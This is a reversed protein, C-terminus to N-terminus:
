RRVDTPTNIEGSYRLTWKANAWTPFYPPRTYALRTDYQYLKSYGNMGTQSSNQGVIGRWRQAISGWVRLEGSSGGVAYKQVLFSHQLTQISGAIMIGPQPTISQGPSAYRMPWGVPSSEGSPSGWSYAVATCRGTYWSYSTCREESRVRVERPRFVEVSNTAVLGLMDDSTEVQGGALVLDGTVIVSQEASITVRGDLVGEAYLNGQGCFKATETMNTDYTYSQNAGTAASGTYNGIPLTKGSLGGIEGGYCQRNATGPSTAAYIVKENPVPLTAGSASDLQDLSGCSPDTSEGPARIAVPARNGNVSKKNWVTMTGSANFIVRTAGYYHCGPNDKFQSSNDVLYKPTAYRPQEGFTASSGQRLCSSNWTNSNSTVNRCKPDATEFSKEFTAGTSYITDNSFVAGDLRDSSIFQIETCDDASRGQFWYKANTSGDRGCGVKQTGNTGYVQVNSPDASEFDTYYVYDTSGGMGVTAQVTRYVGNSRGTVTLLVTGETLKRTADVKYHFFADKDTTAGAQVPLWGPATSPGWGCSNSAGTMPGRWAANACDVTLGYTETSDLRSIFDDVGSQAASMAASYDQDYRAFRQGNMTYALATMALMALVLMSGVVVVMAAGDEDGRLRRLVGTLRGTSNRSM